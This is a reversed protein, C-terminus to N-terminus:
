ERGRSHRISPPKGFFTLTTSCGAAANVRSSIDAFDAKGGVPMSRAACRKESEMEVNASGILRSVIEEGEPETWGQQQVLHNRYFM